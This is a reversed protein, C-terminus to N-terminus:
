AADEDEDNIPTPAPLSLRRVKNELVKKEDIGMKRAIEKERATLVVPGQTDPKPETATAAAVTGVVPSLAEVYARLLTLGEPKGKLSLAFVRRKDTKAPPIKGDKTAQELIGDFAAAEAQAAQKALEVRLTETEAASQKWAAIVVGAEAASAKGTLRLLEDHQGRLSTVASLAEAESASDKLGLSLLVTKMKPEEIPAKAAVLPTMNKTAPINTLAVNLLREPRGKDDPVFAPSYYLYEKDALHKQAAPTWEVDVAYLGDDKLALRYRGAAPARVPPDSLAQHEYDITLKNGYDAANKLVAKASEDDFDYDGKLTDTTGYAFIRFESPCAGESGGLAAIFTRYSATV